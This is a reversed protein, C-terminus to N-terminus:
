TILIEKGRTELLTIRMKKQARVSAGKINM